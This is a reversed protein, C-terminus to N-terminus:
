AALLGYAYWQMISKVVVDEIMHHAVEANPEAVDMFKAAMSPDKALRELEPLLASVSNAMGARNLAQMVLAERAPISVASGVVPSALWIESGTIATKDLYQNFVGALRPQLMTADKQGQYSSRMPKAIGCAVLVQTAGVVDISAFGKGDKHQLFDGIRVPMFSMLNILKTFLDTSLDIEKGKVSLKQPIKERAATIGYTFNGFLTAINETKPVPKRCWVDTRMTRGIAFDKIPEYLIHHSCGILVQHAIEPTVMELYNDAIQADGAYSLDRPLLAAMVDITVSNSERDNVSTFFQDPTGNKIAADLAASQKQHSSFYIGGVKKLDQLVEKAQAPTAAPALESVLFRLAESDDKYAQYRYALLGGQKLMNDALEAVLTHQSPGPIKTEDYCLYDFKPLMSKGSKVEALLTDMSTSVIMVNSVAHQKASSQAQKAVGDDEVFGCFRGEPNSAALCILRDPDQCSLVAYNFKDEPQRPVIGRLAAVYSLQIPNFDFDPNMGLRRSATTENYKM